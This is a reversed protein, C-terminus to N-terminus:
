QHRRPSQPHQAGPTKVRMDWAWASPKIGRISTRCVLGSSFPCARAGLGFRHAGPVPQPAPSFGGFRHLQFTIFFLHYSIHTDLITLRKSGLTIVSIPSYIQPWFASSFVGRTALLMSKCGASRTGSKSDAGSDM